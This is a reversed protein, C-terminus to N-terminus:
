RAVMMQPTMLLYAFGGRLQNLSAKLQDIFNTQSSTQILEGLLESDSTAQFQVGKKTLDRRLQTANTLNGNHALAFQGEGPHDFFMPQINKIGHNGATAYRVHGIAATGPLTAIKQPDAFVEALLGLGRQRHFQGNEHSVIGAGEQGRHQLSHLGDYTLQPTILEGSVLCAASRM